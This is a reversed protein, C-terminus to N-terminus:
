DDDPYEDSSIVDDDLPLMREFDPGTMRLNLGKAILVRMRKWTRNGPWQDLPQQWSQHSRTHVTVNVRTLKAAEFREQMIALLAPYEAIYFPYHITLNVLNPLLKNDLLLSFAPALPKNPWDRMQFLVLSPVLRLLRRLDDTAGRCEVGVLRTINAGAGSRLAFDLMPKPQIDPCGLYTVNPASLAALIEEGQYHSLHFTKLNPLELQMSRQPLTFVSRNTGYLYVLIHVINPFRQLLDLLPPLRARELYKASGRITLSIPRDQARSLWLVLLEDEPTSKGLTDCFKIDVSSWLSSTQLVFTRWLSCIQALLLPGHHPSPTPKLTPLTLLFIQETLENPLSLLTM